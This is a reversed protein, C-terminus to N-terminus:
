SAQKLNSIPISMRTPRSLMSILVMAREEGDDMEYVAEIGAFAGESITVIDGKQFLSPPKNGIKAELVKLYIILHDQIKAPESGFSV